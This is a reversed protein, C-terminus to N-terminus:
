ITLKPGLKFGLRSLVSDQVSIITPHAISTMSTVYIESGDANTRDLYLLNGDNLAAKHGGMITLKTIKSDEPISISSVEGLDVKRLAANINLTKRNYYHQRYEEIFPSPNRQFQQKMFELLHREKQSYKPLKMEENGEKESFKRQPPSYGKAALFRVFDAISCSGHYQENWYPPLAEPIVRKVRSKLLDGRGIHNNIGFYFMIEYAQTLIALEKEIHEHARQPDLMPWDYVTGTEIEQARKMIHELDSLPMSRKSLIPYKKVFYQVRTLQNQPAAILPKGVVEALPSILTVPVIVSIEGFERMGQFGRWVSIELGAIKKPKLVREIFPKSWPKAKKIIKEADEITLRLRAQSIDIESAIEEIHASYGGEARLELSDRLRGETFAKVEYRANIRQYSLNEGFMCIESPDVESSTMGLDIRELPLRGLNGKEEFVKPDLEIKYEITGQQQLRHKQLLSHVEELAGNLEIPKAIVAGEIKFKYKPNTLSDSCTFLEPEEGEFRDPCIVRSTTKKLEEWNKRSQAMWEKSKQELPPMKDMGSKKIQRDLDAVLEILVM